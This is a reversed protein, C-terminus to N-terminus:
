TGWKRNAFEIVSAKDIRWYNNLKMARLEGKNIWEVVTEVTVLFLDAVWQTTVLEPLDAETM